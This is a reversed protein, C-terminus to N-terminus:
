LMQCQICCDIKYSVGVLLGIVVFIGKVVEVLYSVQGYLVEERGGGINCNSKCQNM